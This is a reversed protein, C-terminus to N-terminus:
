ETTKEPPREVYGVVVPTGYRNLGGPVPQRFDLDLAKIFYNIPQKGDWVTDPSLPGFKKQLLQLAFTMDVRCLTTRCDVQLDTIEVGLAKQSIEDVIRTEMGTSWVLDREEAALTQENADIIPAFVPSTDRLDEVNQSVAKLPAASAPTAALEAPVVPEPPNEVRGDDRPELRVGTDSSVRETETAPSINPAVSSPTRLLAVVVGVGIVAASWAVVRPAAVTM